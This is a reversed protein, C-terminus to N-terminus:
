FTLRGKLLSNNGQLGGTHMLLIRNQVGILKQDYLDLLGKLAKATYVFDTPIKTQQFFTNMLELLTEEQKGFGKGAAGFYYNPKSPSDKKFSSEKFLTQQTEPIRLAVIGYLNQHPQLKRFIGRLTTGTGVACIISDYSEWNDVALPMEAAGAEGAENDGGAPVFLYDPFEQQIRIVTNSESQFASRETFLLQMGNNRCASLTHSLPIREEGRIIATCPIQYQRCLFATAALHNSYAGGMTLIGKKEEQQMQLLQYKLKYLKNGSLLPDIRDFRAVHFSYTHGNFLFSDVPEVTIKQNYFPPHELM